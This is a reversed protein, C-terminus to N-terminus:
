RRDRVRATRRAFFVMGATAAATGMCWSCLKRFTVVQVVANFGALAGDAALKWPLMRRAAGSSRAALLLTLTTGYSGLGLLGDPIGLPHAHASGTIGDSDWIEGPPDPLSDVLGLQRAAVPILCAIAVACCATAADLGPQESDAAPILRDETM